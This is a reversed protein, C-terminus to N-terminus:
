GGDQGDADARGGRVEAQYKTYTRNLRSRVQATLRRPTPLPVIHRPLSRVLGAPHVAGATVARERAPRDHVEVFAGDPLRKVIGSEVGEEAVRADRRQASLCLRRTLVFALVPAAFFGIRFIWTTAELPIGFTAKRPRDCVNHPRADGIVWREFLPYVAIMSLFAAPLVVAPLLVNWSVTHGAIETSLRPMIRLAGELFGVYWDPQSGTSVAAPQYPGYLWIPNVQAFTALLSLVAFAFMFFATTQLLFRPYTPCGGVNTETKTVSPWQTHKQHWVIMLHATVLAVLLGPIL